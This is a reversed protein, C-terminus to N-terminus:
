KKQEKKAIPDILKKTEERTTGFNYDVKPNDGKIEVTRTKINTEKYKYYNKHIEVNRLLDGIVGYAMMLGFVVDLFGEVGNEPTSNFGFYITEAIWGFFGILLIIFYKNYSWTVKKRM